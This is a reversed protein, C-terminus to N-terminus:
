WLKDGDVYLGRVDNLLSFWFSDVQFFTPNPIILFYRYDEFNDVELTFENIKGETAITEFNWDQKVGYLKRSGITYEKIFFIFYSGNYSTPIVITTEKTLNNLSPLYFMLSGFLGGGLSQEETLSIVENKTANTENTEPTEPIEPAEGSSYKVDYRNTSWNSDCVRIRGNIDAVVLNFDTFNKEITYNATPIFGGWTINTQGESEAYYTLITTNVTSNQTNNHLFTINISVYDTSATVNIDTQNFRAWTDDFLVISFDISTNCTVNVTTGIGSFQVYVGEELVVSTVEFSTTVLLVLSLIGAIKNLNKLKKM